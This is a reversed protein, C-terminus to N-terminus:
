RCMLFEYIYLAKSTLVKKFICILPSEFLVEFVGSKNFLAIGNGNTISNECDQFVTKNTNYWQKQFHFSIDPFMAFSDKVLKISLM